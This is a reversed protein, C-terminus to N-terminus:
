VTLGETVAQRRVARATVILLVVLYASLGITRTWFSIVGDWALPGSDFLVSLASPATTVMVVVSLHGMWRPFVPDDSAFRGTDHYIALALMLNQVLLMGVPAIFLIWGMDSLVLILDPDRNPRFVATAIFVSALAFITCGSVTASQYCYAFAQSQTRMRKMQVMVVGYLPLLMVGVLNFTVMTLRTLARNDVYFEAVDEAPLTPSLPPRFGPFLAFAIALIVLSIGTVWLAVFQTRVAATRPLDDVGPLLQM